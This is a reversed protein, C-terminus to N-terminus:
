HNVSFYNFSLSLRYKSLAPLLVLIYPSSNSFCHNEDKCSFILFPLFTFPFTPMQLTWFTQPLGDFFSFYTLLDCWCDCYFRAIERIPQRLIEQFNGKKFWFTYFLITSPSFSMGIDCTIEPGIWRSLYHMVAYHFEVTIM